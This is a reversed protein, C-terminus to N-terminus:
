SLINDGWRMMLKDLWALHGTINNISTLLMIDYNM